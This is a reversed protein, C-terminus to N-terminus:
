KSKHKREIMLKYGSVFNYIANYKSNSCLRDEEIASHGVNSEHVLIDTQYNM